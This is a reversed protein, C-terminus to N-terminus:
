VIRFLPTGYEVPEGNEALAEEVTGGREAKIENMVKMAEIICLVAGEEVTDGIDVFLEADPNPARYFTGVMPSRVITPDDPSVASASDATAAQAEGGLVQSVANWHEVVPPTGRKRLRVRSGGEEVELEELQHRNMLDILEKLRALDM